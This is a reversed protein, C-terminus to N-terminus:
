LYVEVIRYICYYHVCHHASQDAGLALWFAPRTKDNFRGLWRPGAKVRDIIFHSVGDLLALWWLTPAFVCCVGLTFAAHVSAHAALPLFFSWDANFKGLMYRSQLLYDSLLHKLQFILLLAFIPFLNM